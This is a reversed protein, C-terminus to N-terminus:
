YILTEIPLILKRQGGAGAGKPRGKESVRTPVHTASNEWDLTKSENKNTKGSKAEELETGALDGKSNDTTNRIGSEPGV